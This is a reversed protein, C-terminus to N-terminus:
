QGGAVSQEERMKRAKLIAAQHEAGTRTFIHSGDPKAVYYLYDTDAPKLAALIADLGPSCIPGPPLGANRYTNYPNDVKLDKFTLVSKHYGLAFQVTADIQLRMNKKLRNRVVSSILPRDAPVRAEREIMSAVIVIKDLPLDSSDFLARNPRYVKANWNELMHRVLKRESIQKPFKYSDPMLYGEVSSRSVPLLLGYAKPKRRAARMFEASRALGQSSLLQAVQSVRRGEPIVVWQQVADGAVLKDIVEIVGLNPPIEYEGARMNKSAGYLRAFIQFATASRIVGAKKLRKAIQGASSGLPIDVRVPKSSSSVPAFVFNAAWFVGVFFCLFV